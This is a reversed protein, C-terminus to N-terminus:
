CFFSRKALLHLREAVESGAFCKRRARVLIEQATADGSDAAAAIVPFIPPFIKDAHSARLGAGRVM